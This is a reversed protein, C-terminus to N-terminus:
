VIKPVLFQGKEKRAANKLVDDRDMSPFVEDDRMVNKVPLVHATPEVNDTNLTNIKKMYELISNLDHAFGEAEGVELRALVSIHEVDKKKVTM